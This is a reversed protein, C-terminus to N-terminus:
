ERRPSGLVRLRWTSEPRSGVTVDVERGRVKTCASEGEPIQPRNSCPFHYALTMSCLPSKSISSNHLESLSSLLKVTFCKIFCSICIKLASPGCRLDTYFRNATQCLGTNTSWLRRDLYITSPKSSPRVFKVIWLRRSPYAGKWVGLRTTKEPYPQDKITIHSGRFSHSSM